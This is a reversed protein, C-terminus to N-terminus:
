YVKSRSCRTWQCVMSGTRWQWSAGGVDSPPKLSESWAATAAGSAAASGSTATAAAANQGPVRTASEVIYATGDCVPSSIVHSGTTAAPRTTAGRGPTTDPQLQQQTPQEDGALAPRARGSLQESLQQCLFAGTLMSCGDQGGAPAAATAPAAAAAAPTAMDAHLDPLQDDDEDILLDGLDLPDLSDLHPLDPPLLPEHSPRVAAATSSELTPSTCHALESDPSGRDRQLSSQRSSPTIPSGKSKAAISRKSPGRSRPAPPFTFAILTTAQRQLPTRDPEVLSRKTNVM